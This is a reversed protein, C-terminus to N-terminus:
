WKLSSFALERGSCNLDQAKFDVRIKLIKTLDRFCQILYTTTKEKLIGFDDNKNFKRVKELTNTKECFDTRWPIGTDTGRAQRLATNAPTKPRPPKQSRQLPELPWHSHRLHIVPSQSGATKPPAKKKFCGACILFTWWTIKQTDLIPWSFLLANTSTKFHYHHLVKRLASQPFPHNGQRKKEEKEYPKRLVPTVNKRSIPYTLSSSLTLSTFSFVPKETPKRTFM